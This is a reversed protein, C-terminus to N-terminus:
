LHCPFVEKGAALWFFTLNEPLTSYEWLNLQHQLPPWCFLEPGPLYLFFVPFGVVGVCFDELYSFIISLTNVGHTFLENFSILDIGINVGGHM